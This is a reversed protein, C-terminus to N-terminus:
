NNNFVVTATGNVVFQTCVYTSGSATVSIAHKFISLSTNEGVGSFNLTFCVISVYDDYFEITSNSIINEFGGDISPTIVVMPKGTNRASVLEDLTLASSLSGDFEANIPVLFIESDSGGGSANGLAWAGNDVVLAKGNDSATVTPLEVGLGNVGALESLIKERQTVPQPTVVSNDNLKKLYLDERSTM